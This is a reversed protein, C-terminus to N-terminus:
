SLIYRVKDDLVKIILEYTSTSEVHVITETGKRRKREEERETEKRKKKDERLTPRRAMSFKTERVPDCGFIFEFSRSLVSLLPSASFLCLRSALGINGIAGPYSPRKRMEASRGKPWIRTVM